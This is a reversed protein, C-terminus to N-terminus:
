AVCRCLNLVCVKRLSEPDPDGSAEHHLSVKSLENNNFHSPLEGHMADPLVSRSEEASSLSTGSSGGHLAALQIRWQEALSQISKFQQEIVDAYM